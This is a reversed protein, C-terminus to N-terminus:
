AQVPDELMVSGERNLCELVERPTSLINGAADRHVVGRALASTVAQVLAVAKERARAERHTVRKAPPKM